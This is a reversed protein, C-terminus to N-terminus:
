RLHLTLRSGDELTVEARSGRVGNLTVIRQPAAARRIMAAKGGRFSVAALSRRDLTPLVVDPVGDNDVDAVRALDLNRSGIIHNTVGDFRAVEALAARALRYIRLSGRLHPTIVAAIMTEGSGTFDAAGAPNLWRNPTGIPASEALPAIRDDGIRYVAIAAGRALYSKVVIAEPRRDGDLDVLRVRLDEFVADDGLRYLLRRGNKEV